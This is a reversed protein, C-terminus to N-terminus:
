PGGDAYTVEGRVAIPRPGSSAPELVFIANGEASTVLAVDDFPSAVIAVPDPVDLLAAVHTLADGSRQVIGIRNGTGSFANHDGVLVYDGSALLAPATMIGEDHEFADAGALPSTDAGLLHVESGAPTGAVERAAVVIRGDPAFLMGYPLSADVVREAAGISGDCGIPARFIGGGVDRVEADVIWIADGNPDMALGGVYAGPDLGAELVEVATGSVRFVGLTGDDHAVFGLEGDPTFVIRGDFARGMSFRTGPRSLSGDEALTLLEYDPAQSGDAAYPHSVVLARARDAPALTRPCTAGADAGGADPAGADTAGGDLSGGDTGADPGAADATAGGDSPEGADTGSSGDCAVLLLALLVVPRRM